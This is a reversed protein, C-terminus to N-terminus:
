YKINLGGECAFQRSPIWTLVVISLKEASDASNVFSGSPASRWSAAFRHENDHQPELTDGIHGQGHGHSAQHFAQEGQVNVSVMYGPQCQRDVWAQLGSRCMPRMFCSFMLLDTRLM